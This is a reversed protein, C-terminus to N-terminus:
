IGVLKQNSLTHDEEIITTSKEIEGQLGRIFKSAIYQIRYIEFQLIKRIILGKIM